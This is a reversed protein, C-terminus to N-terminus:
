RLGRVEDPTLPQRAGHRVALVVVENRDMTYLIHYVGFFTHRVDYGVLGAPYAIEHRASFVGLSQLRERIRARWRRANDPSDAAIYGSIAVINDRAEKTLRVKLSM